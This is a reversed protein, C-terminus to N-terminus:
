QVIIPQFEIKTFKLGHVKDALESLYSITHTQKDIIGILFQRNGAM